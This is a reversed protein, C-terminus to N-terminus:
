GPRKWYIFVAIKLNKSKQWFRAASAYFGDMESFKSKWKLWHQTNYATIMYNMTKSLSQTQKFFM